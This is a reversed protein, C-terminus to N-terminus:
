TTASLILRQARKTNRRVPRDEKLIVTRFTVSVRRARPRNHGDLRDSMRASIGHKWDYRSRGNLLIVSGPRLDVDVVEVGDESTFTMVCASLLSVSAVADGFCPICDVHPAIGQGPMYENVIVQDPVAPFLGRKVLRNGMSVAWPPLSAARMSENISRAKYDYKFGYHQVRRRLDTIWEASDIQSVVRGAEEPTVFDEAYILDPVTAPDRRLESVDSEFLDGSRMMCRNYRSSMM